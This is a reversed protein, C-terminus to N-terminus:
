FVAQKRSSNELDMFQAKNISPCHRWVSSHASVTTRTEGKVVSVGGQQDQEQKPVNQNLLGGTPDSAKEWELSLLSPHRSTPAM